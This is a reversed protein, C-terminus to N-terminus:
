LRGWIQAIPLCMRGVSNHASYDRAEQKAILCADFGSAMVLFSNTRACVYEPFHPFQTSFFLSEM